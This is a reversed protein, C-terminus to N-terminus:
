CTSVHLKEKITDSLDSHIKFTKYKDAEGRILIINSAAVNFEKSLLKILAKNAKGKEPIETVDAKLYTFGDRTTTESGLASRKANPNLKIRLTFPM